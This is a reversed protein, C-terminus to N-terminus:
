RHFPTGALSGNQSEIRKIKFTEKKVVDEDNTILM